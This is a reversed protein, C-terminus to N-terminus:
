ALPLAQIPIKPSFIELRSMAASCFIVHLDSECSLFAPMISDILQDRHARSTSIPLLLRSVDAIATLGWLVVLCDDCWPALGHEKAGRKRAGQWLALSLPRGAPAQNASWERLSGHWWLCPPAAASHGWEQVAARAAARGAATLHTMLDLSDLLRSGRAPHLKTYGVCRLLELNAQVLPHGM